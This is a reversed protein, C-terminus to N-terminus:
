VGGGELDLPVVTYHVFGQNASAFQPIDMANFILIEALLIFNRIIIDDNKHKYM